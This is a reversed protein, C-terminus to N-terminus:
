RKEVTIAYALEQFATDVNAGTLASTLLRRVDGMGYEALEAETIETQDVLDQKNVLLRMPVDGAVQAVSERIRAAAELTPLRTGDCVLLYGNLGRLYNGRLADIDDAGAIDWVVLKAQAGNPLDVLKTDIKVGVTTLYKEEFAQDVFRRVLSTKGVAFDGLMCVKAVPPRSM